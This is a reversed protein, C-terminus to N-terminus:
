FLLWCFGGSLLYYSIVGCFFCCFFRFLLLSLIFFGSTFCFLVCSEYCTLCLTSGLNVLVGFVWIVGTSVLEAVGLQILRLTVRFIAKSFYINCYLIESIFVNALNDSDTATYM